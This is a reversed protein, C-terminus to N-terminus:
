LTLLESRGDGRVTSQRFFTGSNRRTNRQVTRRIHRQSEIKETRKKGAVASLSRMQKLIRGAHQM